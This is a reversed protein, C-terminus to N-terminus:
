KEQKIFKYKKIGKETEALLLYSGATLNEVPISIEGDIGPNFAIILKGFIDYIKVSHVINDSKLFLRDKVPNPYLGSETLTAPVSGTVADATKFKIRYSNPDPGFETWGADEDNYLIIAYYYTEPNLALLTGKFDVNKEEDKDLILSQYGFYTISPGLDLSFVFAIVENEFYDGTNRITATLATNFISVNEADAFAPVSTFQLNPTGLPTTAITVAIPNGLQTFAPSPSFPNNNKDYYAYLNYNGADLTVKGSIEFTKTEGSPINIQYGGVVDQYVNEDSSSVLRLRLISNYEDSNNTITIKFRGTKNRYINGITAIESLTLNPQSDPVDFTINSSTITVNVYNPLGNLMRPIVLDTDNNYLMVCYIKYTGNPIDNAIKANSGSLSSFGYFSELNFQDSLALTRVFNNHNDFLAFGAKGVFTNIGQNFINTASISFSGYRSILAPSATISEIGFIYSPKSSTTPKQIGTMISQSANYGDSTGPNLATLEFYGNAYGGWGWNFHFLNNADYGDCVFAHGEESSQGDYYVPRSANLETKLTNIWELMSFYNRELYQLNSDYGFNKILARGADRSYAASSEDYDMQVAAGCHYMLTAVADKQVQANSSNYYPTMNAWDYSTNAFNVDISLKKTNTVYSINGTGTLPWQHYYMIQAMATAVCGTVARQNGNILPCLDNYPAYQDWATNKLLPSIAVAFGDSTQALLHHDTVSHINEPLQYLYKIEEQYNLLWNRFNEPLSNIDFRGQGSYGLVTKAQDNGSIIVFGDNDGYNFVYYYPEKELDSRLLNICAYALTISEAHTSVSKLKDQSQFFDLAIITADQETRIGAWGSMAVILAVLTLQWRLTM